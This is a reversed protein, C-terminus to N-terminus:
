STLVKELEKSSMKSLDEQTYKKFVPSKSNLNVSVDKSKKEQRMAKIANQVIPKNLVQIGGLDMIADIEETSYGESKLEIRDLRDSSYSEQAPKTAKDTEKKSSQYAIAQRKLKTFDSKSLTITEEEQTEEQTDQTDVVEESNQEEQEVFEEQVYTEENEM